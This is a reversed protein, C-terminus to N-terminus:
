AAVGEHRQQGVALDQPPAHLRPPEMVVPSKGKVLIMSRGGSGSLLWSGHYHLLCEFCAQQSSGEYQPGEMDVHTHM